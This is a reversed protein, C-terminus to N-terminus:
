QTFGNTMYSIDGATKSKTCTEEEYIETQEKLWRSKFEKDAKLSFQKITRSIEM